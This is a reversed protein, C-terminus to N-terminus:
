KILGQNVVHKVCVGGSSCTAADIDRSFNSDSLETSGNVNENQGTLENKYLLSYSIPGSTVGIDKNNVQFHFVGQSNNYTVTNTLPEQSFAAQPTMYAIPAFSQLLISLSSIFSVVRRAFNTKM